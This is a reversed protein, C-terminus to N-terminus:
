GDMADKLCDYAEFKLNFYVFNETVELHKVRIFKTLANLCKLIQGV